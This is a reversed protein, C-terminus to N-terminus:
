TAETGASWPLDCPTQGTQDLLQGLSTVLALSRGTTSICFLLSGSVLFFVEAQRGFLATGSFDNELTM